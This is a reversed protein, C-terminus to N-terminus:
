LCPNMVPERPISLLAKVEERIRDPDISSIHEVFENKQCYEKGRHGSLWGTELSRRKYDELMQHTPHSSANAIIFEDMQVIAQDIADDGPRRALGCDATQRQVYVYIGWSCLVAGKGSTDSPLLKREEGLGPVTLIVIAFITLTLRKAFTITRSFWVAHSRM